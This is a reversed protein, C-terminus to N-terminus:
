VRESERAAPEDRGGQGERGEEHGEAEEMGRERKVSARHTDDRVDGVRVCVCVRVCACITV